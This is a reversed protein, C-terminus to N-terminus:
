SSVYTSERPKRGNEGLFPLCVCFFFSIWSKDFFFFVSLGYFKALPFRFSELLCVIWPHVFVHCFCVVVCVRSFLVKFFQLIPKLICWFCVPQFQHLSHMGFALSLSLTHDDAFNECFCPFSYVDSYPISLPSGVQYVHSLFRLPSPATQTVIKFVCSSLSLQLPLLLLLLFTYPFPNTQQSFSVIFYLPLLFHFFCSSPLLLFERGM